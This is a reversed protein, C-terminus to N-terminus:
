ETRAAEIAVRVCGGTVQEGIAESGAVFRRDDIQLADCLGDIGAKMRALLNDRDYRRRDPPCFTLRLHLPVDGRFAAGFRVNARQELADAWCLRRYSRKAAAHPRWHQRTNPSLERSPWSLVLVVPSAPDAM